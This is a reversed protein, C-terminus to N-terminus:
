VAAPRSRSVIEFFDRVELSAGGVLAGDIDPQDSLEDCNDPKVSGGYLIHCQDAAAGGFWQRLRRPHARAGRRRRRADRQAGHRDGLGARLRHGARRDPGGDPRGPGAKIQRELVALTENGRAADLTEGVCVIPTLQAAVAAACGQPERTEDTEGFLQRRESHGVIM